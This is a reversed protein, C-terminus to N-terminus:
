YQAVYLLYYVMTSTALLGAFMALCLRGLMRHRRASDPLVKQTIIALMAPIFFGFALFMTRHGWGFKHVSFVWWALLGLWVLSITWLAKSIALRESKLILAGDRKIATRFGNIIMYTALFISSTVMLFHAIMVPRFIKQYVWQPGDFHIQDAFSTVGLRRVEYYYIFYLVMITMSFLIMRHHALGHGRKALLGAILFLMTFGAAFFYSIDSGLTSRSSLFGPNNLLEIM